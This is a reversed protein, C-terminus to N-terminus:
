KEVPAMTMVITTKNAMTLVGGDPGTMTATSPMDSRMTSRQLQGKSVDFLIEGEGKAAGLTVVLGAPGSPPPVVDQRLVLGISIRAVPAEPGGEVARLTFTSRGTIRGIGPTGIVLQGTWTDGPKVPPSSLKPFTQEITTRLAAESLQGRIAQVAQRAVPDAAAVKMIKDALATGGDISRVTGDPAMAIVVSEGVMADLVQRMGQTAPDTGPDAITSDVIMKGMPNTSEMRVSQFTQRLTVSGDPAVEDATFRFTQTVTQSTTVPGSPAGNQGPMGTITSDTQTTVRYLRSEGKTWRYRLTVTQADAGAAAVSLLVLVVLAHVRKMTDNPM